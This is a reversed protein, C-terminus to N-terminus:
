LEKQKWKPYRLKILNRIAWGGPKWVWDVISAAYTLVLWIGNFKLMKIIDREEKITPLLAVEKPIHSPINASKRVIKDLDLEAIKYEESM